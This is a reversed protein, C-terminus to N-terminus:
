FISCLQESWLLQSFIWLSAFDRLLVCSM